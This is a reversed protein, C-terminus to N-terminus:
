ASKSQWLLILSSASCKRLVKASVKIDKEPHKTKSNDKKQLRDELKYENQICEFIKVM